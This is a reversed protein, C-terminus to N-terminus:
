AKQQRNEIEAVILDRIVQSMSCRRRQAETKVWEHLDPDINLKTNIKKLAL